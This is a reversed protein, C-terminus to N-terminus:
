VELEQDHTPEPQPAQFTTKTPRKAFGLSEDKAWRTIEAATFSLHGGKLAETWRQGLGEWDTDYTQRRGSDRWLIERAHRDNMVWNEVQRPLTVQVAYGDCRVIAQFQLSGPMYGERAKIKVIEGSVNIKAGKPCPRKNAEREQRELERVHAREIGRLAANVQNDTLIKGHSLQRALDCLFDNSGPQPYGLDDPKHAELAKVVTGNEAAWNEFDKRAKHERAERRQERKAEIKQKEARYTLLASEFEQRTVTTGWSKGHNAGGCGCDCSPRRASMCSGDCTVETTVGALREGEIHHGGDEPCTIYYRGPHGTYGGTPQGEFRVPRNHTECEGLYIDLRKGTSHAYASRNVKQYGLDLTETM